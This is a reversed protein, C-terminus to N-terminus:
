PQRPEELGDKTETRQQGPHLLSRPPTHSGWLSQRAQLAIAALARATALREPNRRDAEQVGRRLRDPLCLWAGGGGVRGIRRHRAADAHGARAPAPAALCSTFARHKGQLSPLLPLAVPRCGLGVGRALRGCRQGLAPARHRPAAGEAVRKLLMEDSVSEESETADCAAYVLKGHSPSVRNKWVM